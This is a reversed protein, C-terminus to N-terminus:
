IWEHASQRIPHYIGGFPTRHIERSIPESLERDRVAKAPSAKSKAVLARFEPNSALLEDMLTDDAQPDLSQHGAAASRADRRCGNGGSEACENLTQKLDTELRSLPITKIAM